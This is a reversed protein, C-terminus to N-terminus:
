VSIKDLQAHKAKKRAPTKKATKKTTKRKLTSKKTPSRRKKKPASATVAAEAVALTQRRHNLFVEFIFAGFLGLIVLELFNIQFETGPIQGLVIFRLV